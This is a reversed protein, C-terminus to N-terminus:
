KPYGPSTIKFWTSVFTCIGIIQHPITMWVGAGAMLPVSVFIKVIDILVEKNAYLKSGFDKIIDIFSNTDESIIIEIQTGDSNKSVLFAVGCVTLTLMACLIQNKRAKLTKNSVENVVNINSSEESTPFDGFKAISKIKALALVFFRRTEENKFYYLYGSVAGIALVTIAVNRYNKPPKNFINKVKEFGLGETAGICSRYLRRIPKNKFPAIRKVSM